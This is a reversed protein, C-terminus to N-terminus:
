ELFWWRRMKSDMIRQGHKTILACYSRKAEMKKWYEEKEQEEEDYPDWPPMYSLLKGFFLTERETFNIKNHSLFELYKDSGDDDNLKIDKKAIDFLPKIETFFIILKDHFLTIGGEELPIDTSIPEKNDDYEQSGYGFYGCVEKKVQTNAIIWLDYFDLFNIKTLKSCNEKFYTKQKFYIKAIINDKIIM